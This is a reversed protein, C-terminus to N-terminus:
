LLVVYLDNTTQANSSDENIEVIRIYPRFIDCILTASLEGNGNASKTVSQNPFERWTSGDTSQQVKVTVSSAGKSYLSIRIETYNNGAGDQATIIPSTYSAGAGLNTTYTLVANWRHGKKVNFFADADSEYGVSGKVGVLWVGNLSDYGLLVADKLEALAISLDTLTKDETGRIADRLASLTIDLQGLISALTTESARTSLADLQTRISDLREYLDALTKNNPAAATIADRLETLTLDLESFKEKIKDYDITGLIDVM